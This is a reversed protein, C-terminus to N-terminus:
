LLLIYYYYCGVTDRRLIYYYYYYYIIIIVGWRIEGDHFQVKVDANDIELLEGPYYLGEAESWVYVTAGNGGDEDQTSVHSYVRLCANPM